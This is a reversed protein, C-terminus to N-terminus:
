QDKTLYNFMSEKDPPTVEPCDAQDKGITSLADALTQITFNLEDDWGDPETGGWDKPEHCKAYGALRAADVDTKDGQNKLAIIAHGMTCAAYADFAKNAHGVTTGAALLAAAAAIAIFHKKTM